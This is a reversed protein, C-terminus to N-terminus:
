YYIRWNSLTQGPTDTLARITAGVPIPETAGAPTGSVTIDFTNNKKIAGGAGTGGTIPFTNVSFDYNGCDRWASTDDYKNLFSDTLDEGFTRMILETIAGITNDPFESGASGYKAKFNTKNLQSM